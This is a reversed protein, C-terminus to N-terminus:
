GLYSIELFAMPAQTSDLAWSNDNDPNHILIAFLEDAEFYSVYTASLGYTPPMGTTFGPRGWAEAIVIGNLSISPRVILAVAWNGQAITVFGSFTIAYRGAYPLRYAEDNGFLTVPLTNPTSVLTPIYFFAPSSSWGGGAPFKFKTTAGVPPLGLVPGQFVTTGQFVAGGMTVNCGSLNPPSAPCNYACGSAETFIPSACTATAGSQTIFNSGTQYLTQAGQEVRLTASGGFGSMLRLLSGPMMEISSPQLVRLTGVMTLTGQMVGGDTVLLSGDVSTDGNVRVNGTVNLAGSIRAGNIVSIVTSNFTWCPAQVVICNSTSNVCIGNGPISPWHLCTGDGLEVAGDVSLNLACLEPEIALCNAVDDYTLTGGPFGLHFTENVILNKVELTENNLNDIDISGPPGAPGPPGPPGPLSAGPPGPPGPPAPPADMGPAGPPGPPGPLATGPTGPPGPPGPPGPISVGPSGPPGPPGQISDGPPGPPGQISDGPVGDTGNLGYPGPPGPPGPIMSMQTSWLYFAVLGAVIAILGVAVCLIIAWNVRPWSDSDGDGETGEMMQQSRQQQQQQRHDQGIYLPTETSKSGIGSQQGMVLLPNVYPYGTTTTYDNKRTLPQSAM